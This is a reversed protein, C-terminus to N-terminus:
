ADADNENSALPTTIPTINLIIEPASLSQGDSTVDVQQRPKGLRYELWLKVAMEKKELVMEALIEWVKDPALTADMQEIVRLEDVRKKRGAGPRAGGKSKM